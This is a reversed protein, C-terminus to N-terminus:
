TDAIDRSMLRDAIDRFEVPQEAVTQAGFDRELAAVPLLRHHAPDV